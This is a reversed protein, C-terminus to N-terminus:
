WVHACQIMITKPDSGFKETVKKVMDSLEPNEPSITLPEKVVFHQSYSQGDGSATINVDIM